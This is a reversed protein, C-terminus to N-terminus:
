SLGKNPTRSWCAQYSLPLTRRCLGLFNSKNFCSLNLCFTMIVIISHYDAVCWRTCWLALGGGTWRGVMTMTRLCRDILLNIAINVAFLLAIKSKYRLFMFNILMIHYYFKEIKLKLTDTLVVWSEDRYSIRCGHIRLSCMVASQFFFM